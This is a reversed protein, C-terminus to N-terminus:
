TRKWWTRSRPSRFFAQQLLAVRGAIDPRSEKSLWALAGVSARLQSIEDPTCDAYRRKKRERSLDINILHEKTYHDQHILVSGDDCAVFNKGTFRGSGFTYKGLKYKQQLINMRKLREEDGGHLLDDTAVGIIGSLKNDDTHRYYLCPDALSQKYGLTKTLLKQLHCYWAFPGDTLGYCTKELRPLQGPVMGPIGERPQEAYVVREIPDGSHFAQTFDLFGLKWSHSVVMQTVMIVGERTIQPTAAQLDEAGQESFGKMVHRAKAKCPEDTDWNLLINAKKAEEIDQPELPKATLVYRSEMIKDGEDRRVKASDEQSLPRYAKININNNVEKLIARQFCDQNHKTLEKLRIEKRKRALTLNTVKAYYAELYETRGRKASPETTEAHEETEERERKEAEPRTDAEAERRQPSVDDAPQNMLDDDLMEPLAPQPERIRPEVYEPSTKGHIRRLPDLREPGDGVESPTYEEGADAQPPLPDKSLDIAETIEDIWGSLSLHEDHSARRVREPSAKVLHGQHAIWITSPRDLM